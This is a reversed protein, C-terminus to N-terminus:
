TAVSAVAVAIDLLQDDQARRGTLMVGIPQGDNKNCPM